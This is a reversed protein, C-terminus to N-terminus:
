ILALGALLPVLRRGSGRSGARVKPGDALGLRALATRTRAVRVGGAVAVAGAAGLMVAADAETM